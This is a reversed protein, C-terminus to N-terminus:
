SSMPIEGRAQKIIEVLQSSYSKKSFRFLENRYRLMFLVLSWVYHGKGKESYLTVLQQYFPKYAPREHQLMLTIWRLQKEYDKYRQARKRVPQKQPLTKSTSHMHQRYQTLVEDLYLIGGLTLAKFALWIDHHIEDPIPLSQLLLSRNILMGHGWVVSYLIYGRSDDGTYMNRIDSLRKHLSQGKEDVLESNSYVLMYNGISQYLREIKNEMWIDDQDAYAIYAGKAQESAFAFNKTLGINEDQYFIRIIPNAEYRRLINPTDDDSADDSIIIELPRYTQTLLSAIQEEVYAAGNYTCMVISILPKEM